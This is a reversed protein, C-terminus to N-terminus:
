YGRERRLEASCAEYLGRLQNYESQLKVYKELSKELEQARTQLKDIEVRKKGTEVELEALRGILVRNTAVLNTVTLSLTELHSTLTKAEAQARVLNTQSAALLANLLDVKALHEQASRSMSTQWTQRDAEHQKKLAQFEQLMEFAIRKAAELEDSPELIIKTLPAPTSTQAPIMLSGILIICSVLLIPKM